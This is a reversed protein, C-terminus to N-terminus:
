SHESNLLGREDVIRKSKAEVRARFEPRLSDLSDRFGAAILEAREDPSMREMEAATWVRDTSMSRVSCSHLSLFHLLELGM